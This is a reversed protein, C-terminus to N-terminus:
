GLIQPTTSAPYFTMSMNCLVLVDSMRRNAPVRQVDIEIGIERCMAVSRVIEFENQQPGVPLDGPAGCIPAPTSRAGDAQRKRYPPRLLARLFLTVISRGSNGFYKTSLCRPVGKTSQRRDNKSHNSTEECSIKFGLRCNGLVCLSFCM